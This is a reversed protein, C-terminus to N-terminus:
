VARRAKPGQPYPHFPPTLAWRAPPLTPPVALGAQLLASYPDRPVALDWPKEGRATRTPQKLGDAVAPGSSHGDAACATVPDPKCAM